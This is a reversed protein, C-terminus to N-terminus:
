TTTDKQLTVLIHGARVAAMLSRSDRWAAAPAYDLLNVLRPERVGVSSPVFVAVMKGEFGIAQIQLDGVVNSRALLAKVNTDALARHLNTRSRVTM